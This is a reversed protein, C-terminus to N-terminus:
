LKTLRCIEPHLWSIPWASDRKIWLKRCKRFQQYPEDLVLTLAKLLCIKTLIEM